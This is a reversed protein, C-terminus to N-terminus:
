LSLCVFISYIYIKLAENESLGPVSMKRGKKEEYKDVACKQVEGLIM